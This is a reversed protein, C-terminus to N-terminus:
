KLSRSVLEQIPTLADLARLVSAKTRVILHSEYNKAIAHTEVRRLGLQSEMWAFLDDAFADLLGTPAKTRVIIGDGHIEFSEIAKGQFAGETLKISGGSLEEIKTPFGAFAYRDILMRIVQPLPPRGTPQGAVLLRILQSLEISVLEM